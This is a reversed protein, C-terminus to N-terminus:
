LRYRNGLLVSLITITILPIKYEKNGHMVINNTINPQEVRFAKINLVYPWSSLSKMLFGKVQIIYLIYNVSMKVVIISKTM